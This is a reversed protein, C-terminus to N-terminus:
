LPCRVFYGRSRKGRPEREGTEWCAISGRDVGLMQALKEITLGLHMRHLTQAQRM